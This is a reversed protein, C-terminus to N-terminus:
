FCNIFMLSEERERERESFSSRLSRLIDFVNTLPCCIDHVIDVQYSIVLSDGALAHVIKHIISM